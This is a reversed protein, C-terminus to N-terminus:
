VGASKVKCLVEHLRKAARDWTHKRVHVLGSAVLRKRFSIDGVVKLMAQKLGETDDPAVLIASDKVVEKVSPINSAIVPTGCAMSELPTTGWGEYYSPHVLAEAACYLKPLLTGDQGINGTFHVNRELDVQAVFSRATHIESEFPGAMILDIGEKCLGSNYYARIIGMVNKHRGIVGVYLMYRKRVGFADVVTKRCHAKDYPKFKPDVGHTVVHIKAAPIDTLRLLDAKTSESVALFHHARKRAYGFSRRLRRVTEPELLDPIKLYAVGRITCLVPIKKSPPFLLDPAYFVDVQGLFTEVAPYGITKWAPIMLRAPLRSVVERCNGNLPTYLRGPTNGKRDFYLLRWEDRSGHGLLSKFLNHSHRKGARRGYLLVSADIGIRTMEM